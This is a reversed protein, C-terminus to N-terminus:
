GIKLASSHRVTYIPGTPKLDSQILHVVDVPISREEVNVGWAAGSVKRADKVRGLTLHPRFPRKEREWGLPALFESIDRHLAQLQELNGQIGAWIVRPRGPNPFCGLQALSLHFASHRIMVQDLEKSIAPLKSLETDGLFRLTLHMRDPAVWRVAGRPIQGSLTQSVQGLATRVDDPLKIAIFARITKM